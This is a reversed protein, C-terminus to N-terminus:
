SYKLNELAVRIPPPIATPKGGDRAVFVHTCHGFARPESENERFLGLRYTVSTNGIREVSLGGEIIEPFTFSGKFTCRSEVIYGVVPDQHPDLGGVQMLFENILTDFYAYYKVNNVHGYVDFDEWRTPIALWSRYEDRSTSM